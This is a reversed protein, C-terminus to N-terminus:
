KRSDIERGLKLVEERAIEGAREWNRQQFCPQTVLASFIAASTKAAYLSVEGSELAKPKRLLAAEPINMYRGVAQLLSSHTLPRSILQVHAAQQLNSTVESVDCPILMPRGLKLLGVASKTDAIILAASQAPQDQTHLPLNLHTLFRELLTRTLKDSVQLSIGEGKEGRPSDKGELVKLVTDRLRNSKFPKFLVDDYGKRLAEEVMENTTEAPALLIFLIESNSKKVQECLALADLGPLERACLVLDPKVKEIASLAKDGDTVAKVTCDEQKLALLAIAQVASNSDIVLIQRSM